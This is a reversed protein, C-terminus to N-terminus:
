QEVFMNRTLIFKNHVFITLFVISEESLHLHPKAQIKKIFCYNFILLM